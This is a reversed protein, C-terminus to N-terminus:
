RRQLPKVVSKTLKSVDFYKLTDEIDSITLNGLINFTEAFSVGEFFATAFAIAIDETSDLAALQEGYMKNKLRNFMKIDIDNKLRNSLEEKFVSFVIDPDKSEGSLIIAGANEVYLTETSFKDNLYGERYLRNYFNSSKGCLYNLILEVAYKHKVLELGTKDFSDKIGICFLPSSVEAFMESGSSVTEAPEPKFISVPKEESTKRIRKSVIEAVRDKDVDGAVCLVMNSPRYFADHCAYLLESTIKSISEVSGAIDIKVPHNYFMNELLSYFCRNNPNDLGMKIEQGIIGQEKAVTEPTFYPENVLECLVDLSEYFNNSASFLYGTIDFSTFANADAGYESYKNFIDGYKKEFMKHELFHAIGEPLDYHKKNFTFSNNISGYRTAYFAYSTQFEPKPIVIVKLRDVDLCCRDINVKSM